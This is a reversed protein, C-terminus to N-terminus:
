VYYVVSNVVEYLTDYTIYGIVCTLSSKTTMLLTLGSNCNFCMIIGLYFQLRDYLNSKCIAYVRIIAQVRISILYMFNFKRDFWAVVNVNRKWESCKSNSTSNQMHSPHTSTPQYSQQIVPHKKAPSQLVQWYFWNVNYSCPLRNSFM